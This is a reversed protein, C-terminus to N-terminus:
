ADEKLRNVFDTEGVAGGTAAIIASRVASSPVRRGARILRVYERSIGVSDALTGDTMRRETMWDDLTM